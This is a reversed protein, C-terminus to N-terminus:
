GTRIERIEESHWRHLGPPQYAMIYARRNKNSRNSQSGHVVNYHFWLVSGAPVEVPFAEGEILDVDTYLAGLVGRDKLGQLAGHSHSGPILWLCGNEKTADDFYMMASVIKDVQAAGYAWYPGEQHWPFPAGGPRKVNLKDTFLSLERCGILGRCPGWLRPDDVLAALRTDLHHVPEMSRVSTLDERWEWKVSAGCLEQYRQQDVRETVPADARAAAELIRTHVHEVAERLAEIEECSFVDERVFFGRTEFQRAEERTVESM